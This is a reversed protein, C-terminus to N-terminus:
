TRLFRPVSDVTYGFGGRTSLRAGNHYREIIHRSGHIHEWAHVLAPVALRRTLTLLAAVPLDSTWVREPRSTTRRWDRLVGFGRDDLPAWAARLRLPDFGDLGFRGDEGPPEAHFYRGGGYTEREAM